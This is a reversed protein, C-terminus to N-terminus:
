HCGGEQEDEKHHGMHMLRMDLVLGLGFGAIPGILTWPGGLLAGLYLGVFLGLCCIM